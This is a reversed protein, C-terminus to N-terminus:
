YLIKLLSGLSYFSKIHEGLNIILLFSTNKVVLQYLSPRLYILQELIKINNELHTIIM